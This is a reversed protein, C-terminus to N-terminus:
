INEDLIQDIKNIDWYPIRLLKINNNNCYQTKINDHLVQKDYSYNFYHNDKYHQEGDFEIMINNNILYFDFRLPRADRCKSNWYEYKFKINHNELYHRIKFEGISEKRYCEPCLQGGHQTFLILSTTFQKGCKPCLIILNRESNNIYDDPNLLTGGCDEVRKIVEDRNLKISNRITEKGCENCGKNGYILNDIRITKNGHIPCIYDIYDNCNHIQSIDTVLKYGKENCVILIKQYLQDIRDQINIKWIAGRSCQYCETFEKIRFFPKTQLGHKPCIFQIISKSNNFDEITSVLKYGYSECYLKGIHYYENKVHNDSLQQPLYHELFLNYKNIIYLYYSYTVNGVVNTDDCIISVLGNFYKNTDCLRVQISQKCKIDSYGINQYYKINNNTIKVNVLQNLDIM